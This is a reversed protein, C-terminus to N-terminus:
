STPRTTPWKTKEPNTKPTHKTLKLIGGRTLKLIMM